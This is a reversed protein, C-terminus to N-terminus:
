TSLIIEIQKCEEKELIDECQKNEISTFCSYDLIIQTLVTPFVGLVINKIKEYDEYSVIMFMANGTVYIWSKNNHLSYLRTSNDMKEEILHTINTWDKGDWIKYNKWINDDKIERIEKTEILDTTKNLLILPTIEILSM